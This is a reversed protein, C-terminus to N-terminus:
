DEQKDEVHADWLWESYVPAYPLVIFAGYADEHSISLGHARCVNLIEQLFKDTAPRMQREHLSYVWRPVIEEATM